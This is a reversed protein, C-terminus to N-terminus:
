GGGCGGGGCGGGGCGGGGCGGGGGGGCGPGGGGCGPGGGGCGPGGGWFGGGGCGFFAGCGACGGILAGCGGCGLSWVGFIGGCGVCGMPICCFCTSPGEESSRNINNNNTNANANANNLNQAERRPLQKAYRIRRRKKNKYLCYCCCLCLLLPLAIYIIMTMLSISDELISGDSIETFSSMSLLLLNGSKTGVQILCENPAQASAPLEFSIQDTSNHTIQVAKEMKLTNYDFILLKKSTSVLLFKSTDPFTWKRLIATSSIQTPLPSSQILNGQIDYIELLSESTDILAFTKEARFPTIDTFSKNQFILSEELTKYNRAYSLLVMNKIKNENENAPSAFLIHKGDGMSRFFCEEGLFVHTTSHIKSIISLSDFIVFNRKNTAVVLLDKSLVTFCLPTEKNFAYTKNITYVSTLNRMEAISNNRQNLIFIAEGSEPCRMFSDSDFLKENQIFSNITSDYIYFNGQKDLIAFKDLSLACSSLIPFESPIKIKQLLSLDGLSSCYIQELFLLFFLSVWINKKGM